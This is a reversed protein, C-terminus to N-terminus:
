TTKYGFLPHNTLKPFADTLSNPDLNSVKYTKFKHLDGFLHAYSQMRGAMGSTFEREYDGIFKSKVEVKRTATAGGVDQMLNDPRGRYNLFNTNDFGLIFIEKYGMFVAMALMKYITTSGYSRPKLPSISRNLFIRERDDFFIRASNSFSKASYATHPLVLTAQSVKVYDLIENLETAQDNSLIGFHAPDSLGYFTPKVKKSVELQNFSNIVFVDDIYDGLLNLNLNNLSPGSGLVLAVKGKKSNELNRTERLHAHKPRPTKLFAILQLSNHVALKIVSRGHYYHPSAIKRLYDRHTM